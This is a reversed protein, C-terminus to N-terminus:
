EALGGAKVFETEGSTVAISDQRYFAAWYALHDRLVPSLDGEVLWCANQYQSNSASLFEGHVQKSHQVVADRVNIWFLFWEKQTLKDDSNGITIVLTPV